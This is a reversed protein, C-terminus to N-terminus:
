PTISVARSSLDDSNGAFAWVQTLRYGPLHLPLRLTRLRLPAVYPRIMRASVVLALDSAAVVSPAVLFHPVTLAVRRQLGQQALLETVFGPPELGASGTPVVELFSLAAFETLTPRASRFPHDRRVVCVFREEFLQESHFSPPLSYQRGLKLDVDGNVLARM